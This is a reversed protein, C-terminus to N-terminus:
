GADEIISLSQLESKHEESILCIKDWAIFAIYRHSDLKGWFFNRILAKMEKLTRQPIRAISMFYVPISILVSKILALRGAQSLVNMKWGSLKSHLRQLLLEHSQDRRNQNKAIFVGLYKERHGAEKAGLVTLVEDRSAADCKKSFWAKSKDPNIHLGSYKAFEELLMKICGIERTDAQGLIMLDDAYMINTLQPASTAIRVGKIDGQNLAMQIHKTLFEMALIYLYPSLPCGQRLGRTPSLFGSGQGNIQITVRSSAMANMVIKVVRDPINVARMAAEVFKWRVTDFAKNVDAKLLFAKQKFNPTNFSHIVERM